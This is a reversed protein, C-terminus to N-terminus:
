GGMREDDAEYLVTGHQTVEALFPDGLALRGRLEEPSRVLLDLPFKPRVRNRIDTAMEWSKGPYSAVVLVDVDSDPNPSGSAYSGFLLIRRPHFEQAVRDAFEQIDKMSVM